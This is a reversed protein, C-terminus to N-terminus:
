HDQSTGDEAAPLGGEKEILADLKRDLERVQQKLEATDQRIKDVEGKLMDVRPPTLVLVSVNDPVEPAVALNLGQIRFGKTGLQRGFDGLDFNAQGDLKPEGHGDVYMILREQSRALRQLLNALAQENFDTLHESRTGYEIVLEGNSRVNAAATQKPQERPDIFVLTLDPKARKYPAVFDSILRRVDGLAPDQTTAYATISIPGTMKALVDRTGQSLTNRQNQTIDWQLRNDKVAYVALFAGAALLLAFLGNQALMQLRLRASTKM